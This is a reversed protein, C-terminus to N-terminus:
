IKVVKGRSMETAVENEEVTRTNGIEVETASKIPRIGGETDANRETENAITPIDEAEAPDQM